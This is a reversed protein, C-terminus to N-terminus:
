SSNSTYSPVEVDPIKKPDYEPVSESKVTVEYVPPANVNTNWESLVTLESPQTACILQISQGDNGGAM